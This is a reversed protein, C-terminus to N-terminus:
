NLEIWTLKSKPPSMTYHPLGRIIGIRICCHEGVYTGVLKQFTRHEGQMQAHKQKATHCANKTETLIPSFASTDIEPCCHDYHLQTTGQENSHSM